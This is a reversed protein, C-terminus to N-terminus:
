DFGVDIAEFHQCKNANSSMNRAGEGEDGM